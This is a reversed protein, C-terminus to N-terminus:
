YTNGILITHILAHLGMIVKCVKLICKINDYYRLWNVKIIYVKSLCTIHVHYTKYIFIKLVFKIYENYGYTIEIFSQYIKIHEWYSNWILKMCGNYIVGIYV